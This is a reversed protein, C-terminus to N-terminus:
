YSCHASWDEQYGPAPGNVDDYTLTIYVASSAQYAQQADPQFVFQQGVQFASYQAIFVNFSYKSRPGSTDEGRYGARHEYSFSATNVNEASGQFSQYDPGGDNWNASRIDGDGGLLIPQDLPLAWEYYVQLECLYTGDNQRSAFREFTPTIQPVYATLPDGSKDLAHVSMPTLVVAALVLFLTKARTNSFDIM